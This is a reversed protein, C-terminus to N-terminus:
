RWHSLRSALGQLRQLGQLQFWHGAAARSAGLVGVGDPSGRYPSKISKLQKLNNKKVFCRNEINKL